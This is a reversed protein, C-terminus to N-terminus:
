KKVMFNNCCRFIYINPEPEYCNVVKSCILCKWSSYIKEM